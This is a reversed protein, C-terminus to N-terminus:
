DPYFGKADENNFEKTITLRFAAVVIAARGMGAM